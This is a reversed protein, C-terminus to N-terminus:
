PRWLGYKKRRKRQTALNVAIVFAEQDRLPNRAERRLELRITDSVAPMLNDVVTDTFPFTDGTATLSLRKDYLFTWVDGNEDSTPTHDFRIKNTTTNIVWAHPEGTFDAPRPQDLFMQHYPTDAEFTQYEWIKRNDTANVMVRALYTEGSFQEFDSPLSYERTDTALTITGTATEGTIAGLDYLAYIAENWIQLTVDIEHLLGTDTFVTIDGVDGKIINLRRLTRNTVQLLTYAM